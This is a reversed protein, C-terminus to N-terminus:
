DREKRASHILASYMDGRYAARGLECPEGAKDFSKRQIVLIAVGRPIELLRRYERSPLDASIEEQCTKLRMGYAQDLTKYLSDRAFDFRELGPYKKQPLQVVEVALPVHDKLRLRYIEYVQEGKTLSFFDRAEEAAPLLRFSLVRSEPLGGRARIEETFSRLEDQAKRLRDHAVFTGRGRFSVILGKRELMAVAARYTMRSVGFQCCLVREPPLPYGAPLAGSKLLKELAESIQVYAPTPSAKEIQLSRLLDAPVSQTSM